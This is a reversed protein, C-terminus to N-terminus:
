LFKQFQKNLIFILLLNPPQFFLILIGHFFKDFLEIAFLHIDETGDKLQQETLHQARQHPQLSAVLPLDCAHSGEGEDAHTRRQRHQHGDVNGLFKEKARCIAVGPTDGSLDDAANTEETGAGDDLHFAGDPPEGRRCAHPHRRTYTQRDSGAHVEDRHHRCQEDDQHEGRQFEELPFKESALFLLNHPQFDIADELIGCGIPLTEFVEVDVDGVLKEAVVVRLARRGDIEHHPALVLDVEDAHEVADM